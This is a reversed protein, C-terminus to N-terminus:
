PTGEEPDITHAIIDRTIDQWPRIDPHRDCYHDLQEAIIRRHQVAKDLDDEAQRERAEADELLAQLTQIHTAKGLEDLAKHISM